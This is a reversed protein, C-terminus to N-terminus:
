TLPTKQKKYQEYERLFKNMANEYEVYYGTILLNYKERKEIIVLFKVNKFLFYARVNKKYYKEFYLIKECNNCNEDCLYNEIIPKNWGIREARRPDPIRDNPNTSDALQMIISEQSNISQINKIPEVDYDMTKFNLYRKLGEVKKASKTDKIDLYIYNEEKPEVLNVLLQYYMKYYWDDHTQNFKEHRLQTKNIILARFRLNDSNFFYDVLEKYYELKSTSVKNWKIEAREKINYKKKLDNIERKVRNRASKECIIGGLIMYKQNDHELHCSEDCYINYKM